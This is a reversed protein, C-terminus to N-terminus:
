CDADHDKEDANQGRLVHLKQSIEANGFWHGSSKYRDDNNRQDVKNEVEFNVEVERRTVPQEHNEESRDADICPEGIKQRAPPCQKTRHTSAAINTNMWFITPVTPASAKPIGEAAPTTM